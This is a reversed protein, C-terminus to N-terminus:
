PTPLSAAAIQAPLQCQVDPKLSPDILSLYTALAHCCSISQQVKGKSNFSQETDVHRYNPGPPLIQVIDQENIIRWSTLGLGNFTSVFTQDGIMPSAFTYLSQIPIKHVM